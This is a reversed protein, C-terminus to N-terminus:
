LFFIDYKDTWIYRGQTLLTCIVRHRTKAEKINTCRYSFVNRYDDIQGQRSSRFVVTEFRFKKYNVTSVVFSENNPTNICQIVRWHGKQLKDYNTM